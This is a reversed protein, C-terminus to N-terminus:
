VGRLRLAPDEIVGFASNVMAVLAHAEGLSLRLQGVRLEVPHRNITAAGGEVLLEDFQSIEVVTVEGTTESTVEGVRHCHDVLQEDVESTQAWAPAGWSSMRSSVGQDKSMATVEWRYREGSHIANQELIPGDAM